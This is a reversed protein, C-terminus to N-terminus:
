PTRGCFTLRLFNIIRFVIVSQTQVRVPLTVVVTVKRFEGNALLTLFGGVLRQLGILIGGFNSLSVKCWSVWDAEAKGEVERHEVVFDQVRRVLCAM